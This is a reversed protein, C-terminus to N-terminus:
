DGHGAGVHDAAYSSQLLDVEPEEGFQAQKRYRRIAIAGSAIAAGALLIASANIIFDDTSTGNSGVSGVASNSGLSERWM